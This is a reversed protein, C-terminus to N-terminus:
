KAWSNQLINRRARSQSLLIALFQKQFRGLHECGRLGPRGFANDKLNYFTFIKSVLGKNFFFGFDSKTDAVEM